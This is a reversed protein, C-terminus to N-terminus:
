NAAPATASPSPSSVPSSKSEGLAYWDIKRTLIMAAALAVFTMVAGILFATDELTLLFYLAGYLLAIGLGFVCGRWLSKLMYMAYYALLLVCATAAAIYSMVFALHESLAFLLIFFVTVALGALLYQVPHVRASKLIEFLFVSGLTLLVFLFGYRVARDSLTYQDVPEVLAVAAVPRSGFTEAPHVVGEIQINRQEVNQKSGDLGLRTLVNEGGTALDSVVWQANFGDPAITRTSPLFSGIFGPHPWPSDLAIRNAEGLPVVALTGSGALRLKSRFQVTGGEAPIRDNLSLHVGTGKHGEMTVPFGPKVNLANGGSDTVTFERIGRVDSIAFVLTPEHYTVVEDNRPMRPVRFEAAIELAADFTRAQYIGRRRQDPEVHGKVTLTSPRITKPACSESEIKKTVKSIVKMRCELVLLPGTMEQAGAYESALQRIVSDRRETREYIKSEISKLAGILVIVVVGLMLLKLGLSFGSNNKM